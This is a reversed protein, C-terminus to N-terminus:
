SMTGVQPARSSEGNAMAQWKPSTSAYINFITKRSHGTAILASAAKKVVDGFEAYTWYKYDSLEYYLWTKKEVVERGGIMKKVEKEESVMRVTDTSPVAMLVSIGVPRV